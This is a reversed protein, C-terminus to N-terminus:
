QGGGTGDPKCANPGSLTCFGEPPPEAFRPRTEADALRDPTPILPEAGGAVPASPSSGAAPELDAVQYRNQRLQRFYLRAQWYDRSYDDQNLAQRQEEASLGMALVAEDMKDLHRLIAEAKGALYLNKRYDEAGTASLEEYEWGLEQLLGTLVRYEEVAQPSVATALSVAPMRSVPLHTYYYGAVAVTVLLLLLGALSLRGAYRESWSSPGEQKVILKPM